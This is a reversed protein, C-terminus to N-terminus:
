NGHATKWTEFCKEVKPQTELCEQYNLYRNKEVAQFTGRPRPFSM